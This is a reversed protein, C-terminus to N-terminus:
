SGLLRRTAMIEDLHEIPRLAASVRGDDEREIEGRRNLFMPLQPFKGMLGDCIVTRHADDLMPTDGTPKAQAARALTVMEHRGLRYLAQLGAHNALETPTLDPRLELARELGVNLTGKVQAITTVVQEHDGFDVRGFVIAANTILTMEMELTERDAANEFVDCLPRLALSDYVIPDIIAIDTVTTPTTEGLQRTFADPTLPSNIVHSWSMDPIGEASLRKTREQYSEEELLDTTSVNPINILQYFLEADTEFVLALLRALLFHEDANPVAIGIWTFGKDPTYYEPGPPSDTPEEFVVVKVHRAILLAILKLDVFRLLKQLLRLGSEEDTLSLWQWFREESFRDGEWCDFDVLLRCQDITAIEILDGSASLGNQKIAMFLSQAPVTRVFHEPMDADFIAKALSRASFGSRRRPIAPLSV